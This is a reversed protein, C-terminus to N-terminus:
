RATACLRPRAVCRVFQKIRTAQADDLKTPVDSPLALLAPPPPASEETRPRKPPPEAM